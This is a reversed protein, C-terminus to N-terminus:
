KMEAQMGLNLARQREPVERKYIGSRLITASENFQPVRSGYEGQSPKGLLQPGGKQVANRRVCEVYYVAEM